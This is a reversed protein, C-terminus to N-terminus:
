EVKISLDKYDVINRDAQIHILYLLEFGCECTKFTRKKGNYVIFLGDILHFLYEKLIRGSTIKQLKLYIESFSVDNICSVLIPEVISVKLYITDNDKNNIFETKM